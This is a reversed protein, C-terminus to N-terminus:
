SPPHYGVSRGFEQEFERRAIGLAAVKGEESFNKALELLAAIRLVKTQRMQVSWTLSAFVALALGTLATAVAQWVQVEWLWPKLVGDGLAIVTVWVVVILSLGVVLVVWTIVPLGWCDRSMFRKVGKGSGVLGINRGISMALAYSGPSTAAVPVGCVWRFIMPLIGVSTSM